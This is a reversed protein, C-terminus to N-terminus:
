SACLEKLVPVWHEALVRDADFGAAFERAKERWPGMAGAQWVAFAEEWAGCIGAASPRAWYAAHANNFWPDGEVLWGSGCMETMASADTVVVPTGCAQAELVPLGFGEGFSCNSLIDLRGYWRAMQEQGILGAAYLYQDCFEVCAGDLGLGAALVGLNIGNRTEARANVALLAEPHRARFRAFAAFQEAFGKRVPDQNAANIGIVFRGGVGAVARDADRDAPPAWVATDIAHPAFLPEYGADALMRRGHGSMAVPRGGGGDLIKRDLASLPACDAPMWHAANLGAVVDPNMVWADMITLLLDAEHHAYHGALVDQAWQDETSAPYVLIGNWWLPAGSLGNFPAVAVDHGLSALRPVLQAAQTGYGSWAWPVNGSVLIRV